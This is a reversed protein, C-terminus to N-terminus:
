RRLNVYIPVDALIAALARHNGDKVMPIGFGYASVPHEFEVGQMLLSALHEVYPIPGGYAVESPHPEWKGGQWMPSGFWGAGTKEYYQWAFHMADLADNMSVGWDLSHYERLLLPSALITRDSHM